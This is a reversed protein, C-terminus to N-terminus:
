DLVVTLIQGFSIVGKTYLEHIRGTTGIIVHAGHEIFKKKDDEFPMGGIALM